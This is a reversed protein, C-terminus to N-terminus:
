VAVNGCPGFISIDTNQPQRVAGYQRLGDIVRARLASNVRDGGQTLIQEDCIARDPRVVFIEPIVPDVFIIETHCQLVTGNESYIRRSWLDEIEARDPSAEIM